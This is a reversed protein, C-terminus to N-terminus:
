SDTGRRLPPVGSIWVWFALGLGLITGLIWWEGLAKPWVVPLCLSALAISWTAPRRWGPDHSHAPPAEEATEAPPESGEDSLRAALERQLTAQMEAGVGPLLLWAQRLPVDYTCGANPNERERLEAFLTEIESVSKPEHRATWMLAVIAATVSWDVPGRAVSLLYHRRSSGEWGRDVYSIALAAAVQVNQIWRAPEYRPSPLPPPHVLTSVLDFARAPGLAEGLIRAREAWAALRYPEVAIAAVERQVAADPPRLAVEFGDGARRWLAVEAGPLPLRLDRGPVSGVSLKLKVPQGFAQEFLALALLNSPGEPATVAMEIEVPGTKPPADLFTEHLHRLIGVTADTPVFPQELLPEGITSLLWFAREDEPHDSSWQRLAERDAEEGLERYRAFPFGSRAWANEPELLLAEAYANRADAVRDLDLCLDGVDLWSAARTDPPALETGRRAIALAGELDGAARLTSCLTGNSRWDPRLEYLAHAAMLAQEMKGLKRLLITFAHLPVPLRRRSERWDALLALAAVATGHAPDAADVPQPLSNALMLLEAAAEEVAEDSLEGPNRILPLWSLYSKEPLAAALKAVLRLADEGRGLKAYTRARMAFWGAWREDERQALLRLADDCAMFWGDFVAGAEAHSPDTALAAAIHFAAHGLDGEALARHAIALEEDITHPTCSDTVVGVGCKSGHRPLM